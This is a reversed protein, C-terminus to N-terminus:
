LDDVDVLRISYEGDFTGGLGDYQYTDIRVHDFLIQRGDPHWSPSGFLEEPNGDENFEGFSSRALLRLDTGDVNILWIDGDERFVIREGDPSVQPELARSPINSLTDIRAGDAILFVRGKELGRVGILRGDPFWDPM